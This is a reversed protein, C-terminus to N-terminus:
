VGIGIRKEPAVSFVVTLLIFTPQHILWLGDYPKTIRHQEHHKTNNPQENNGLVPKEM